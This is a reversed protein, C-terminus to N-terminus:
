NDHAIQNVKPGFRGRRKGSRGQVERNIKVTNIM